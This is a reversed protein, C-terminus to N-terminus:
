MSVIIYGGYDSYSITTTCCTEYSIFVTYEGWSIHPARNSSECIPCIHNSFQEFVLEIFFTDYSTIFDTIDEERSEYIYTISVILFRDVTHTLHEIHSTADYWRSELIDMKDRLEFIPCDDM